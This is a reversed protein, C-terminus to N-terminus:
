RKYQLRIEVAQERMKLDQLDKQVQLLDANSKVIQLKTDNLKEELVSLRMTYFTWSSVITILATAVVVIDKLTVSTPLEVTLHHGQHPIPVAPPTGPVAVPAPVVIQTQPAHIKRTAM